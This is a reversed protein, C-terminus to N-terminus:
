NSDWTRDLFQLISQVSEQGTWLGPLKGILGPLFIGKSPNGFTSNFTLRVKGAKYLPKMSNMISPLHQREIDISPITGSIKSYARNVDPRAMYNIFQKAAFANKTDANAVLTLQSAGLWAVTNKAKPAPFTFMSLPLAPSIQKVATLELTVGPMMVADGSAVMQFQQPVTVATPSPPFCKANKMDIFEQLARKWQPSTAFKVKGRERQLSWNPIETFVNNGVIQNALTVLANIAGGATGVAIPIKGAGSIKQCM